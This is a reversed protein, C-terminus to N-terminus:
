AIVYLDCAEYDSHKLWRVINERAEQRWAGGDAEWLACQPATASDKLRFAFTQPVQEVDSFTRYPVLTVRGPVDRQESVAGSVGRSMEVKQGVGNDTVTTEAKITLRSVFKLLEDRSDTAVFQSQLGIIFTEVDMWTNFKFPDPGDYTAEALIDRQMSEGHVDTVIRVTLHDVVHIALSRKSKGGEVLWSIDDEIYRKDLESNLYDMLGSLTHVRFPAPRPDSYIRHMTTPSYTHGGMEFVQGELALEAIKNVATGDM